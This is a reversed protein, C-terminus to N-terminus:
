RKVAPDAMKAVPASRVPFVAVKSRPKDTTPPSDASTEVKSSTFGFNELGRQSIPGIGIQPVESSLAADELAQGRRRDSKSQQFARAMKAAASGPREVREKLLEEM